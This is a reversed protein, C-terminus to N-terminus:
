AVVEVGPMSFGIERLAAALADCQAPTLDVLPPRVVGWDPANSYVGIAAKLAPIM